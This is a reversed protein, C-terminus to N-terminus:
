MESVATTLAEFVKSPNQMLWVSSRAALDINWTHENNTTATTSVTGNSAVVFQGNHFMVIDAPIENTIDHLAEVTYTLNADSKIARAFGYASMLKQLQGFTCVLTTQQRHMVQKALPTCVDIVDRAVIVRGAHTHLFKELVVSTESNRGIDGAILTADAWEANELWLALSNSAFGGSHTSPGYFAEPLFQSVLKKISDPLIVRVSGAGATSATQYAQAPAAFEHGNGGIILLKGAYLRNEPKSWLLEPFLPQGPVQKLWDTREM